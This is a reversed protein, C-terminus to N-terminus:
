YSQHGPHPCHVQGTTPDYVYAEHGVPCSLLEAPLRLESLSAPYKGDPDTSQYAAIAQRVSILDTMCVTDRAMTIPTHAKGDKGAGKGAYFYAAGGMLIVLLVLVVLIEILSFGTSQTRHPRM